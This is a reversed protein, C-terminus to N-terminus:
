TLIFLVQGSLSFSPQQVGAFQSLPCPCLTIYQAIGGTFRSMNVNMPRNSFCLFKLGGLMYNVLQSIDNTSVIYGLFVAEFELISCTLSNHFSFYGSCRVHSDNLKSDGSAKVKVGTVFKNSQPHITDSLLLCISDYM